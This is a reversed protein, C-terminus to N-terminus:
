AYITGRNGIDRLIERREENLRVYSSYVYMEFAHRVADDRSYLCEGKGVIQMRMVTSAQRLDVLDVSRHIACALAQELEFRQVPLVPNDALFAVDLDSNHDANGEVMSGFRYVATISPISEILREIIQDITSMCSLSYTCRLRTLTM